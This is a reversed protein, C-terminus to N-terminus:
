HAKPPKECDSRVELRKLEQPTLATPQGVITNWGVAADGLKGKFAVTGLYRQLTEAEDYSAFCLSEAPLGPIEISVPVNGTNLFVGYSAPYAEEIPALVATTSGTERVRHTVDQTGPALSGLGTNKRDTDVHRMVYQMKVDALVPARPGVDLNSRTPLVHAPDDPKGDDKFLGPIQYLPIKDPGALAIGVKVAVNGTLDVGPGGQRFIRLTRGNEEITITLSEAQYTGNASQTSTTGYTFKQGLSAAVPAGTPAGVSLDTEGGNTAVVQLTGANIVNYISTANDWSVFHSGPDQLTLLVETQQLRDDASFGGAKTTTVTLNRTLHRHDLPASATKLPSVLNARLAKADKSLRPDSLARIYEAEAREVFQSAPSTPADAAPVTSAVGVAATTEDCGGKFTTECKATRYLGIVPPPAPTICGALSVASVTVCGVLRWRIM